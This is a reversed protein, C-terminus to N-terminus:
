GASLSQRANQSGSAPAFNAFLHIQVVSPGMERVMSHIYALGSLAQKCVYRICKEPLPSSLLERISVANDHYAMVVWLRGDDV